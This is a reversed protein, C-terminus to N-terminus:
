KRPKFSTTARNVVESKGASSIVGIMKACALIGPQDIFAHSRNPQPPFLIVCVREPSHLSSHDILCRAVKACDLDQESVGPNLIHDSIRTNLYLISQFQCPMSLNSYKHGWDLPAM